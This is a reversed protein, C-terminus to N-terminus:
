ILYSRRINDPMSILLGFMQPTNATASVGFTVRGFDGSVVWEARQVWWRLGGMAAPLQEIMMANPRVVFIAMRRVMSRANKKTSSM